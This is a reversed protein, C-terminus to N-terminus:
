QPANKVYLVIEAPSRKGTPDSTNFIQLVEDPEIFQREAKVAFLVVGRAPILEKDGEIRTRSAGLIRKNKMSEVKSSSGILSEEIWGLVDEESMGARERVGITITKTLWSEELMLSFVGNEFGFPVPTHTELIGEDIMRFIFEKAQEFSARLNNHDYPELVPPILGSGLSAARGALSCLSLYLTFPHSVGTNLLAEFQPLDSVLSQIMSKTEILLAGRMASSPSRVRESLFIAKERLRHAATSCIEWVASKTSAILTPPIYDTMTFTENRYAVKLLPFSSYKQPPTDTILLSLRPKLRPISLESEGTNEDVVPQGEVSDYRALEGKTSAVGTRKAPVVLHVTLPKKKMEDAYPKLDIALDPGEQHPYSLALGDPMVAELELVRLTGDILLNSDIKLHHVGWYFPAIAMLHYHLLAEQRLAMQQFHQPSLLMGEHWQIAAPLTRADRM